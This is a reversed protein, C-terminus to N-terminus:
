CIALTNSPTSINCFIEVNQTPHVSTVSLRCVIVHESIVFLSARIEGNVSNWTNVSRVCVFNSCTWSIGTYRYIKSGFDNKIDTINQVYYIHLHCDIWYLSFLTYPAAFYQMLCSAATLPMLLWTCLICKDIFLEFVCVYGAYLFKCEGSGILKLLKRGM